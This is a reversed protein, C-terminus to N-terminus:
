SPEGYNTCDYRIISDAIEEITYNKLETVTLKLLISAISKYKFFSKFADDKKMADTDEIQNYEMAESTSTIDEKPM